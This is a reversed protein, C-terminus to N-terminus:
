PHRGESLVEARSCPGSEYLAPRKEGVLLAKSLELLRLAATEANWLDIMTEYAKRGLQGGREPNDLLFRVKKYLEDVNGSRYILGNEGNNLLFPVSGIADSAVVACGSNMAENLVAGWGENRDSTFLYIAAEEMHARVEESPVAGVLQVCTQLSHEEVQRRIDDWVEGSGILKIQFDYGEARLRRAIEVVAEPHKWDLFRGVWLITASQKQNLLGEIDDYRNLEPFYGWKYAKNVFTGNRAFDVATYASACLLYLNKHRGYKKYFRLWHAPLKWWPCKAKYLRESYVLILKKLKLRQSQYEWPASGHVVVEAQAILRLAADKQTEDEYARIVFPYDGNLDRYGNALREEPVSKTAVFCFDDGLQQYLCQCFPLQHISLYSSVFVIKM